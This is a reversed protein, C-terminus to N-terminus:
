TEPHELFGHDVCQAVSDAVVDAVGYHFRFGLDKLRKSSMVSSCLGDFDRSLRERPKFPPYRAALLRAVEAMPHGGAVCLYQSEARPSEMLFVHADCADKYAVDWMANKKLNVTDRATAHVRYGRRLLTRVIWSGVYGISGTVCLVPPDGGTQQQPEEPSGGGDVSGM